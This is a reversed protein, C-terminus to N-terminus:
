VGTKSEDVAGSEEPERDAAIFDHLNYEQRRNM